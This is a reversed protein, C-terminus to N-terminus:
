GVVATLWCNRPLHAPQRAKSTAGPPKSGGELDPARDWPAVTVDPTVPVSARADLLGETMVLLPARPCSGKELRPPGYEERVADHSRHEAM